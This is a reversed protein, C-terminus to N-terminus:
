RKEPQPSVCVLHHRARFFLEGGSIAPTAMCPEGVDNTGIVQFNPAARITYVKGEESTFHIKDADAVPSATFGSRGSALREEFRKEGTKTTHCSVVGNDKCAFLYDGVVIPTQMYNGGRRVSWAVFNNTTQNSDLTIDGQANARIAYIPSLKGHASTLFILDGSIIPTPVPIDGGGSM